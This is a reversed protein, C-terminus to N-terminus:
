RNIQRIESRLRAQAGSNSRCPPSAAKAGSSLEGVRDNAAVEGLRDDLVDLGASRDREVHVLEQIDRHHV